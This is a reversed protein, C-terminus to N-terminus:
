VDKVGRQELYKLWTFIFCAGHGLKSDVKIDGGNATVLKKVFTLGMGTGEKHFRPALTQFMEFIKQHYESDIGQGDDCVSFVYQSDEEDVNVSIVGITKGHHKIANQILNFFIQQLPMRPVQISKFAESVKITFGKPPALLPIISKILNDGDIVKSEDHTLKQEVRSYELIDELLKEMRKIQQRLKTMHEKSEGLVDALDEEIWQSLNDISHLPTKLDHAAAYAFRELEQNSKTLQQILQEREAIIKRRESILREVKVCLEEESFPKSIYDRVGGKLLSIKFPDDMKASLILIPIDKTLPNALLQEAMESGTMEPMMVDTVILDPIHKLAKELGQKGNAATEIRYHVGLMNALFSRMDPNDEVLLVLAGQPFNQSKVQVENTSFQNNLEALFVEGPETISPNDIEIIKTHPPAQLPLVVTFKSGSNIGDSIQISAKHLAVIEKVIALGLGTGGVKRRNSGDLQRFREFVAERMDEPIGQGSDSVSLIANNDVQELKMLVQGGQPTFKFANSLLNLLVRQLKEADAEVILSDPADVILSINRDSAFSDFNSAMLRLLYTLNLRSYELSLKGEELKAIDLLDNVQKLLLQANREILELDHKSDTDLNASTLIKKIPGLILTLPTRLEHSVNAFFNTKLEDLEKTKGYLQELNQNADRLKHNVDAVELSRKFVESEMNKVHIKLEETEEVQKKNQNLYIFETIDEARHIIYILEGQENLLPANYASWYREEFSGDQLSIDYKQIPMADGVHNALVRQLSARLNDVGTAAPNNPNDPFVEFIGHGLIEERKTLTVKLYANSVAAITFDPKLILYQGPLSEFM